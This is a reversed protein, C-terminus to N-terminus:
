CKLYSESVSKSQIQWIHAAIRLVGANTIQTTKNTQKQERSVLVPRKYTIDGGGGRGRIINFLEITTSYINSLIVLHIPIAITQFYNHTSLTITCFKNQICTLFFIQTLLELDISILVSGQPVNNSQLKLNTCRKSLTYWNGKMHYIQATILSQYVKYIFGFTQIM